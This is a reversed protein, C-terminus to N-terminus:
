EFFFSTVYNSLVMKMYKKAEQRTNETNETIEHTERTTKQIASDKFRRLERLPREASKNSFFTLIM